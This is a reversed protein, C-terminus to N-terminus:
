DEYKGILPSRDIISHRAILSLARAEHARLSRATEVGVTTKCQTSIEWNGGSAAARIARAYARLPPERQPSLITMM